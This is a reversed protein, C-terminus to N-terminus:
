PSGGTSSCPGHMMPMPARGRSDDLPLPAGMALPVLCSAEIANHYNQRTLPRVFESHLADPLDTAFVVPDLHYRPLYKLMRPLKRTAAM